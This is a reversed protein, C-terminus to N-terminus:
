SKLMAPVSALKAGAMESRARIIGVATNANEIARAGVDSVAKARNIEREIAEDDGNIDLAMLNDLEEFFIGQLASLDTSRVTEHGAMQRTREREKALEDSVEQKIQEFEERKRQRWHASRLRNAKLFEEYAEPNDKLKSYRELYRQHMREKQVELYHETIERESRNMEDAHERLYKRSHTRGFESARQRVKEKAAEIEAVTRFNVQRFEMERGCRVCRYKGSALRKATHDDCHTCVDRMPAGFRAPRVDGHETVSKVDRRKPRYGNHSLMEWAEAMAKRKEEDRQKKYKARRLRQLENCHDRYEKDTARRLRYKANNADRNRQRRERQNELVRDHHEADWSRKYERRRLQAAEREDATYYVIQNYSYTKGCKECRYGIQDFCSVNPDLPRGHWTVVTHSDCRPCVDRRM